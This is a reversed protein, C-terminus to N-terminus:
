LVTYVILEKEITQTFEEPTQIELSPKKVEFHWDKVGCNIHVHEAILASLSLILAPDTKNM